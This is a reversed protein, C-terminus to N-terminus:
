FSHLVLLDDEIKSYNEFDSPACIELRWLFAPPADAIGPSAICGLHDSRNRIPGRLKAKCASMLSWSQMM